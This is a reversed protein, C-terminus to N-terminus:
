PTGSAATPEDAPKSALAALQQEGPGCVIRVFAQRSLAWLKGRKVCRVTHPRPVRHLLAIEGFVNGQNFAAVVSEIGGDSDPMVAHFTGSEVLYALESPDGASVIEEGAATKVEVLADLLEERSAIPVHRLLPHRRM